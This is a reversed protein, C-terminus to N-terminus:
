ELWGWCVGNIIDGIHRRSVGYLDGLQEHSYCGKKYKNRIDRIQQDVLKHKGNKTGRPSVGNIINDQGNEKRTGYVLNELRNDDSIGNLHRVDYNEPRSGVFTELVLQHVKRSKCKGNKCLNVHVHGDNSYGPKLERVM